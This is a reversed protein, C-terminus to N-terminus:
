NDDGKKKDKENGGRTFAAEGHLFYEVMYALYELKIEQMDEEELFKEAVKRSAIQVRVYDKRLLMLRMQNLIFRSKEHKDMSSFTEVQVEQLLMAAADVDGELREKLDAQISVLRSREVEVFIKGATIDLLTELLKSRASNIDCKVPQLASLWTMGLQVLDSVVRRLQGRKRCLVVMLERSKTLDGLVEKCLSVAKCCLKSCSIADSVQRCKKELPLIEDIAEEVRKQKEGM